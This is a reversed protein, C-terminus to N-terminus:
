FSQLYTTLNIKGHSLGMKKRINNRHIEITRFSINTLEAIEKSSLGNKIMNCIEVERPTLKWKRESVRMGFGSTLQLTSKELLDIHKGDLVSGKRRLKKLLPLLLEEVNSVVEEKIQKKEIEIQGLIEQLALNKQELTLKQKRLERGSERLAEDVLKRETVDFVVGDLFLVNGKKDYVARGKDYVWRISGDKHIIRYELVFPKHKKIQELVIKEVAAADDHHIISAYSRVQNKIFDSNPYGAIDSINENFFEVTWNKDCACRYVAGPINAILTRFREERDKLANEATKRDTIDEVTGIYAVVKGSSNRQPVAKGTVWVVKGVPQKMRYEMEFSDGRKVAERWKAVLFDHDEPHIIKVWGNGYTEEAPLGCIQSLRENIYTCKGKGDTQFIGSPSMSTLARFREERDRLAQETRTREAIEKELRRNVETLEQTRLKVRDELEARTARLSEEIQNKETIDETHIVVYDPPVFVYRTKFYKNEGTTVLQYFMERSIPSQKSLCQNLDKLIDKRNKYVESAKSGIFTHIRDKTLSSAADNYDRFIFDKGAKQWIYVPVPYYKYHLRFSELHPM